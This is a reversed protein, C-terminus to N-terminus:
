SLLVTRKLLRIRPFKRSMLIARFVTAKSRVRPTNDAFLGKAVEAGVVLPIAAITKAKENRIDEAEFSNLPEMTVMAMLALMHNPVMDRLAGTVEYFNGRTEVGVTESATIQV